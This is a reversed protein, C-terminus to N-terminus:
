AVELARMPKYFVPVILCERGANAMDGVAYMGSPDIAYLFGSTCVGKRNIFHYYANLKPPESRPNQWGWTTILERAATAFNAVAAQEDQVLAM